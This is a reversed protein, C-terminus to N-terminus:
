EEIEEKFHEEMCEPCIAAGFVRYYHQDQIHDRCKICVPRRELLREQRSEHARWADYSDPISM